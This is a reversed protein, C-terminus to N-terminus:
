YIAPSPNLSLRAVKSPLEIEVIRPKRKGEERERKGERAGKRGEKYKRNKGTLIEGLKAGIPREAEVREQNGEMGDMVVLNVEVGEQSVNYLRWYRMLCGANM